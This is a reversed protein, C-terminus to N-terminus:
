FEPTILLARSAEGTVPELMLLLFAFLCSVYKLSWWFELFWFGTLRCGNAPDDKPFQQSLPLDPQTTELM